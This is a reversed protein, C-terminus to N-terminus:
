NKRVLVTGRGARSDWEFYEAVQSPLEPKQGIEAEVLEQIESDIEAKRDLGALVSKKETALTEALTNYKALQVKVAQIKGEIESLSPIETKQAKLDQIEPSALAIEASASWKMTALEFEAKALTIVKPCHKAM